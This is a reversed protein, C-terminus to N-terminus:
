GAAAIEAKAREAYRNIVADFESPAAPLEGGGFVSPEPLQLTRDPAPNRRAALSLVRFTEIKEIALTAGLTARAEAAELDKEAAQAKRASLISLLIAEGGVGSGLATGVLKLWSSDPPKLSVVMMAAVGGVMMKGLFGLVWGTRDRRPDDIRGGDAVLDGAFAGLAGCLVVLVWARVLPEPFGRAPFPADSIARESTGRAPPSQTPQAPAGTPTDPLRPPQPALVTAFGLVAALAFVALLAHGARQPRPGPM